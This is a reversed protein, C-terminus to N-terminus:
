GMMGVNTHPSYDFTNNIKEIKWGFWGM